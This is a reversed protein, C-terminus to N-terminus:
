QHRRNECDPGPGTGNTPYRAAEFRAMATASSSWMAFHGIFLGNRSSAPIQNLVLSVQRPNGSAACICTSSLTAEDHPYPQRTWVCPARAAWVLLTIFRKGEILTKTAGALRVSLRSPSTPVRRAKSQKSINRFDCWRTSARRWTMKEQDSLARGAKILNLNADYEDTGDLDPRAWNQKTWFNSVRIGVDPCSKRHAPHHARWHIQLGDHAVLEGLVAVMWPRHFGNGLRGRMGDEGFQLRCRKAALSSPPPSPPCNASM